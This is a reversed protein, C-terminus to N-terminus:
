LEGEKAKQIIDLINKKFGISNQGFKNCYEKVEDLAQKYRQYENKSECIACPDSSWGETPTSFFANVESNQMLKIKLEECEANKERLEQQLSKNQEVIKDYQVQMMEAFIILTMKDTQLKDDKIETM